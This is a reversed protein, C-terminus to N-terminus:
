RRRSAPARPSRLATAAAAAQAAAHPSVVIQDNLSLRGDRLAEFALYLTMVKTISAPHRLANENGQITLTYYDALFSLSVGAQESCALLLRHYEWLSSFDLHRISGHM